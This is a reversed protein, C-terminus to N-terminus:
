LDVAIQDKIKEFTKPGIGQVEQIEEITKFGGHSERYEIIRQAYAPGIGPLCEDLTAASATNINVPDCNKSGTASDNTASGSVLGSPPPPTPKELEGVKPIYIKAGDSIKAALNLNKAVWDQDALTSLGGGSDLADAVRSSQPLRYVGPNSVAGALEVVITEREKVEQAAPSSEPVQAYDSKVIGINNKDGSGRLFVLVGGGVLILFVLALGLQQRYRDLLVNFLNEM